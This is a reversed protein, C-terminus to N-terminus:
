KSTKPEPGRDGLVPKVDKAVKKEDTSDSIKDAVFKMKPHISYVISGEIKKDKIAGTYTVKGEGNSFAWEVSDAKITGSVDGRGLPGLYVGTLKDGSQKLIITASSTGPGVAKWTGTLNGAFSLATFLLSAIVTRRM